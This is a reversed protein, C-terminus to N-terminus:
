RSQVIDGTELHGRAVPVRRAGHLRDFSTFLSPLGESRFPDPGDQLQYHLHPVSVTSSEGSLGIRAIPQGARVRDGRKVTVTGHRLHALVSYEGNQHDIVVFNGLYQRYDTGVAAEDFPPAGAVRDVAENESDLVVGDGPAVVPAEWGLWREIGTGGSRRLDGREDVLTFDYAYRDFQKMGTDTFRTIDLRRHHAYFDHGDHVLVRGVVPVVLQTKTPYELPEVPVTVTDVAAGRVLQFRFSLRAIPLSGDLTHFPNLVALVGKGPVIRKPVTAIGPMVAQGHLRRVFLVGGSRDYGTMRIETLEAPLDGVNTAVFDFNLFQCCSSREILPRTPHVAITIPQAPARSPAAVSLLTIVFPVTAMKM